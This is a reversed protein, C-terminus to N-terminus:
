LSFLQDQIILLNARAAKECLLSGRSMAAEFLSPRQPIGLCTGPKNGILNPQQSINWWSYAVVIKILIAGTCRHCMQLHFLGILLYLDPMSGSVYLHQHVVQSKIGLSAFRSISEPLFIFYNCLKWLFYSILPLRLRWVVGKM